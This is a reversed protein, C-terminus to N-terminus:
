EKTLKEKADVLIAKPQTFTKPQIPHKEQKSSSVLIEVQRTGAIHALKDLIIEDDTGFVINKLIGANSAKLVLEDLFSYALLLVESFSITISDFQLQILKEFAEAGRDRTVFRTTLEKIHISNIM